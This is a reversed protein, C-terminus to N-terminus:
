QYNMKKAIANLLYDLQEIAVDMMPDNQREICFVRTMALTEVLLQSFYQKDKMALKLARSKPTDGSSMNAAHEAIVEKYKTIQVDTAPSDLIKDKSTAGGGLANFQMCTMAKPAVTAAVPDRTFAQVLIVGIGGVLIAALILSRKGKPKSEITM